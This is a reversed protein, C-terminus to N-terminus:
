VIERNESIYARHIESIQEVSRNLNPLCEFYISIARNLARIYTAVADALNNPTLGSAPSVLKRTFKGGDISSIRQRLYDDEIRQWITFFSDLESVLLPNQTRLGARLEGFFCGAEPYIIVSYRITPNYKFNISSRVAFLSNGRENILFTEDASMLRTMESFFSQRQTEPTALGLEKALLKNIFGSRTMGSLYARKDIERVLEDLLTISYISKKM